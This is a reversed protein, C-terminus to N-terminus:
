KRSFIRMGKCDEPRYRGNNYGPDMTLINGKEDICRFVVFHYRPRQGLAISQGEQRSPNVRLIQMQLIAFQNNSCYTKWEHINKPCSEKRGVFRLKDPCYKQIITDWKVNGRDDFCENCRNVVCPDVNCGVHRMVSVLSSLACGLQCFTRGRKDNDYTEDRCPLERRDPNCQKVDPFDICKCKDEDCAGKGYKIERLYKADRELKPGGPCEFTGELLVIEPSLSPYTCNWFWALSWPSTIKNERVHFVWYDVRGIWVPFEANPNLGCVNYFAVETDLLFGIHYNLYALRPSFYHVYAYFGHGCQCWNIKQPVFRSEICVYDGSLDNCDKTQSFTISYVILVSIFSLPTTWLSM